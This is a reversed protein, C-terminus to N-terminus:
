LVRLDTSRTVIHELKPSREKRFTITDLKANVRFLENVVVEVKPKIWLLLAERHLRLRSQNFTQLDVGTLMNSIYLLELPRLEQGASLADSL